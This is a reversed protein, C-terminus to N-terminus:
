DVGAARMLRWKYHDGDLWIKTLNEFRQDDAVQQPPLHCHYDIIPLDRAYQHYLNKAAENQLLFDDTIFTDSM